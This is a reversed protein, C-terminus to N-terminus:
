ANKTTAAFLSSLQSVRLFAKIDRAEDKKSFGGDIYVDLIHMLDDIHQPEFGIMTQNTEHDYKAHM